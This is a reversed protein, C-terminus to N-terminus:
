MDATTKPSSITDVKLTKLDYKLTVNTKLFGLCHQVQGTDWLINTTYFNDFDGKRTDPKTKM